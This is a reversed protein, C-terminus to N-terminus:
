SNIKQGRGSVGRNFAWFPSATETAGVEPLAARKLAEEFYAKAKEANGMEKYVIGLNKTANLYLDKFYILIPHNLERTKEFDSISKEYEGLGKYCLGREWHSMYLSPIGFSAWAGGAAMQENVFAIGAEFTEKAKATEGMGAYCLGLFNYAEGSPMMELMQQLGPLAKDYQKLGLYCQGRYGYVWNAERGVVGSEIM